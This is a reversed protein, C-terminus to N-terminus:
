GHLSTCCSLSCLVQLVAMAEKYDYAYVSYLKFFPALKLFSAAINEPNHKLENLLEGNVNYISEIHGFLTMYTVHPIFSKRKLPEM